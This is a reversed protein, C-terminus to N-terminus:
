YGCGQVFGNEVQDERLLMFEEEFGSKVVEM